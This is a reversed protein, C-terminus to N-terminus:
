SITRSRFVSGQGLSTSGGITVISGGAELFEILAPMTAEPTVRGLRNRYEEPITEPDPAGFGFQRMMRQRVSDPVGAFVEEFQSGIAGQPFIIVDYDASLGGANLREPFVLEFDAYEFQELLWRIWGSPMSGGYVDWLAIRPARLRLADADPDNDLGQFDVGLEAAVEAVADATGRRSKVYFTGAPHMRGGERLASTLWYVEHGSAHLRNIATFADNAEHSFLFGDAGGADSVVGPMPSANWDTIEEFPGDFGELIRDFEVGMQIALTWGANDYPPTPPAGAYLFDDPHDQPEFMDLVHPRFAQAARVVYSGAPYETGAVTFDSTAREVIVGSELLTNVFKTATPFDAQDSPLIYGRPDRLDPEFLRDYEARSAAAAASAAWTAPSILRRRGRGADGRRLWEVRRPHITWSDKSGREISNMGMRWIRYLFTERYRSAVDLVAKNATVSYDVSQRFHWPQPEIPAPLNDNPLVRELILPIEMPTPHGITETLLGIMNKFYPTTRLGGNWWTSYNAGRRRTAGPKGEETFRSHMASGSSISGRSSWRTSTTTSRIASRPRSSCPERHTGTQHHNYVIQPYWTRYMQRNMNESEPQFSTYFDRNNDHGVYKQYLVPIGRTSRETKEENRTYWNSVLDMGDPNAHVFLIIVDDLIRTTEDDTGSVFQWLTEMLQQAGLVETAHLGGDIWM